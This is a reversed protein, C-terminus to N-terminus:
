LTKELNKYCLTPALDNTLTIKNSMEVEYIGHYVEMLHDKSVQLKALTYHLSTLNTLEPM